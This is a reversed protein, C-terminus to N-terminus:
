WHGIKYYTITAGGNKINYKTKAHKNWFAKPLFYQTIFKYVIVKYPLCEDWHKRISM